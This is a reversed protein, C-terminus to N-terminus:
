LSVLKGDYKWPGAKLFADKMVLQVAAMKVPQAAGAFHKNVITSLKAKTLPKQISDDTLAALVAEQVGEEVDAAGNGSPTPPASAAPTAATPRAAPKVGTATKVGSMGPYSTIKSFVSVKDPFGKDVRQPQGPKPKGTPMAYDLAVLHGKVGIISSIPQDETFDPFGAQILHNLFIGAKSKDNLGTFDKTDDVGEIFEGDESPMVVKSDGAKYELEIESQDSDMRFGVLLAPQPGLKAMEGQYVFHGYHASIIEVDVQDPAFQSGGKTQTAVTNPIRKGM